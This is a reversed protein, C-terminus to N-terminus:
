MIQVLLPFTLRILSSKVPKVAGSDMKTSRKLFDMFGTECGFKGFGGALLM